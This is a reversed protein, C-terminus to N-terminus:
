NEKMADRLSELGRKLLGAVASPSRQMHEAIQKLSLGQWHQLVLAERQADPLQALANALALAQEHGAVQMSPSTQEAALFAELRASSAEVAQGLEQERAVDRKARRLSKMADALNHALIQRLWAAREGSTEGRFADRKQYAELLTQQVVDSPDIKRQLEGDLQLRALMLLYQRYRELERGDDASSINTPQNLRSNVEGEQDPVPRPPIPETASRVTGLGPKGFWRSRRM